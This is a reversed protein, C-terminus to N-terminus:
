PGEDLVVWERIRDQFQEMSTIPPVHFDENDEAM